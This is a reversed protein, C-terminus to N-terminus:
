LPVRCSRSTAGTPGTKVRKILALARMMPAHVIKASGFELAEIIQVITGQWTYHLDGRLAHLSEGKNLQRSIKRRNLPM